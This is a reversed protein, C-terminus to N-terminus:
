KLYEWEVVGGGLLLSDSLSTSALLVQNLSVCEAFTQMKRAESHKIVIFHTTKGKQVM